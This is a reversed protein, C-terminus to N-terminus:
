ADEQTPCCGVVTRTRRYRPGEGPSPLRRHAVNRRPHDDPAPRLPDHDAEPQHEDEPHAPQGALQGAGLLVVRLRPERAAGLRRLCEVELRRELRGVGVLRDDDVAPGAAERLGVEPLDGRVRRLEAADAGDVPDDGTREDRGVALGRLRDDREVEPVVAPLLRGVEDVPDPRDRGAVRAEGHV